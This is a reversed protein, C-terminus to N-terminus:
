ATAMKSGASQELETETAATEERNFSTPARGEDVPVGIAVRRSRSLGVSGRLETFATEAYPICHTRDVTTAILDTARM